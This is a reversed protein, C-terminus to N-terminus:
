NNPLLLKGFVFDDTQELDVVIFIAGDFGVFHFFFLIGGKPMSSIVGSNRRAPCEGTPNGFEEAEGFFSGRERERGAVRVVECSCFVTVAFEQCNDM